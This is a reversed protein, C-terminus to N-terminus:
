NSDTLDSPLDLGDRAHHVRTTDTSIGTETAPAAVVSPIAFVHHCEVEKEILWWSYRLVPSNARFGRKRGLGLRLWFAVATASLSTVTLKDDRTAVGYCGKPVGFMAEILLRDRKRKEDYRIRRKRNIHCSIIPATGARKFGQRLHRGQSPVDQTRIAAAAGILEDGIKDGPM